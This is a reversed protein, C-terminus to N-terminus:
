QPLRAPTAGGGYVQSIVVMSNSPQPPAACINPAGPSPAAQQYTSTNRAGGSGNPCRGSSHTTGSGGGNENVQPQDANLLVLLGPDDADDTDYVMADILNTTSVVTGNPFDTANGAFLAVADAGNQL